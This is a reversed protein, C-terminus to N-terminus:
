KNLFKYLVSVVEARTANDKPRFKGEDDGQMLGSAYAKKIYEYAWDSIDQVDDFPIEIGEINNGQWRLLEIIIKALEERTVLDNPRFITDQSIIGSNLAAQISQAYWEDGSIDEFSGQYPTDLVGGVRNVLVM